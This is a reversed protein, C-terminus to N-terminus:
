VEGEEALRGLRRFPNLLEEARRATDFQLATDGRSIRSVGEEPGMQLALAAVAQEMAPPVDPRQCYACARQIALEVRLDGEEGLDCGALCQAKRRISRILEERNM